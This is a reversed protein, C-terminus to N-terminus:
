RPSIRPNTRAAVRPAPAPGGPAPLPPRANRDGWGRWKEAEAAAQAAQILEAMRARVRAAQPIAYMEPPITQEREGFGGWAAWPDPVTQDREGWGAPWDAWPDPPLPRPFKGETAQMWALTDALDSGPGQPAGIGMLAAARRANVDIPPQVTSRTPDRMAQPVLMDAVSRGGAPGARERPLEVGVTPVQPVGVRRMVQTAGQSVPPRAPPAMPPPAATSPGLLAPGPTPYAPPAPRQGVMPIPRIGSPAVGSTPGIGGAADWRRNQRDRATQVDGETMDRIRAQAAAALAATPDSGTYSPGGRRGVTFNGSGGPAPGMSANYLAALLAHGPNGALRAGPAAQAMLQAQFVQPDVGAGPPQMAEDLYPSFDGRQPVYGRSSPHM